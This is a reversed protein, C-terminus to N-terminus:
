LNSPAILPTKPKTSLVKAYQSKPQLSGTFKAGFFICHGRITIKLQFWRGSSANTSNSKEFNSSPPKGLGLPCGQIDIQTKNTYSIEIWPYWVSSMDPQYEVKIDVTEGPQVDSIYIEGDEIQSIDFIGKQKSGNLVAPTEFQWTIPNAGNDLHGIKLIEVLQIKTFDSSLTFAFCRHTGNFQGEILQLINLGTWLGDYVSAEKGALSSVPDFNLAIIGTSYAGLGGQTPGSTM